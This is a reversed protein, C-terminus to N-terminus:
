GRNFAIRTERPARRRQALIKMITLFKLDLEVKGFSAIKQSASVM